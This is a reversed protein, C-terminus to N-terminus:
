YALTVQMGSLYSNKFNGTFLYGDVIFDIEMTKDGTSFNTIDEPNLTRVLSTFDVKNLGGLFGLKKWNQPLYRVDFKLKTVKDLDSIEATFGENIRYTLCKSNQDSAIQWKICQGYSAIKEASTVGLEIDFPLKLPEVNQGYVPFLSFAFLVILAVKKM